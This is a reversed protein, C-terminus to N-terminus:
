SNLLTKAGQEKLWKNIHVTDTQRLINSKWEDNPKPVIPVTDKVTVPPQVRYLIMALLLLMSCLGIKVVSSKQSKKVLLKIHSGSEKTETM